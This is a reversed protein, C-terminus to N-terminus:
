GNARKELELIQEDILRRQNELHDKLDMDSINDMIKFGQFFGRGRVCSLRGRGMGRGANNGLFAISKNANQGQACVGLRRGTMSGQGAPGTGNLGPM